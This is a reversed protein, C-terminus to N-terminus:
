KLTKLYAVVDDAQTQSSLGAFMMRTGPVMRGPGRVWKALNEPTWTISSNKLAASYNFGPATGAKCGVVGWLNPGIRNPAGKAASHCMACRNFITKGNAADGGALAPSAALVIVAAAISRSLLM